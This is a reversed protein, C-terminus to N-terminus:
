GGLPGFGSFLPTLPQPRVAGVGQAIYSIGNGDPATTILWGFGVSARYSEVALLRGPPVATFPKIPEASIRKRVEPKDVSESPTDDAM